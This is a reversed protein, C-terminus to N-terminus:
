LLKYIKNKKYWEITNSLGINFDTFKKFNIFKKIKRNSGHTKMVDAKNAKVNKVRSKPLLKKLKHTIKKINVTKGRCVNFIFHDNKIKKKMLITCIKTVDKIYTFDRDHNGAKNLYFTKKKSNM